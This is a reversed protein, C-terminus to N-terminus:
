CYAVNESVPIQYACGRPEYNGCGSVKCANVVQARIKFTARLRELAVVFMAIRSYNLM